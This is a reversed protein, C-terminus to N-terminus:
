NRANDLELNLINYFKESQQPSVSRDLVLLLKESSVAAIKKAAAAAHRLMGPGFKITSIASASGRAAVAEHRLGASLLAYSLLTSGAIAAYALRDRGTLDKGSSTKALAAEISLKIVDVGPVYNLATDAAESRLLPMARDTLFERLLGRREAHHLEQKEASIDPTEFQAAREPMASESM